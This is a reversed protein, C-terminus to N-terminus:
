GVTSPFPEGTVLSRVYPKTILYGSLAFFLFVGSAGFFWLADGLWRASLVREPSGYEVVRFNLGHAHIVVVMLAAFGRVIDLNGSPAARDVLPDHAAAEGAGGVM